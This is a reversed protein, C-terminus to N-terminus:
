FEKFNTAVHFTNNIKRAQFISYTGDPYSFGYAWGNAWRLKATKHNIYLMDLKCLCGIARAEQQKLGPTQYSEISHVHGFVVNGYVRSHSACANVGTHFGHIVSLHGLNLVGDRSDYPYQRMRLRECWRDIREICQRGLTRTPGNASDLLNYLRTDHNGFLFHRERGTRFFREGFEIGMEFDTDLDRQREDDSAGKRLAAFDFLDGNCIVIDPRFDKSFEVIADCAKEDRELGHPDPAIVFRRASRM